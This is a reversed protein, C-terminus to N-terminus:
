NELLKHLFEKYRAAINEPSKIKVLGGLGTVWGFFQESIFVRVTVDFTGDSHKIFTPELGFRDIISSAALNKCNLTVLAENGGFMGFTKNEYRSIDFEGYVSKETRKEDLVTVKQMRDVRYHRINEEADNYSVLYYNENDFVLALPSVTYRKGEKREVLMKDENYRFYSFEIKKDDRIGQHIADVTYFIKENPAKAFATHVQRDLEAAGYISTESYLKKTLENSKKATLFQSSQIIDVLTKLEALEYKREALYYRHDSTKEIYIGYDSLTAIDGYLAKREAKVDKSALKEIIDNMSLAHSGDTENKLIDVLYFLKLKQNESKAM